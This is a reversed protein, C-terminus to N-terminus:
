FIPRQVFDLFGSIRFMNKTHLMSMYDYRIWLDQFVCTEILVNNLLIKGQVSYYETRQMRKGKEALLKSCPSM